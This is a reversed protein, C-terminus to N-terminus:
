VIKALHDLDRFCKSNTNKKDDAYNHVKAQVQLLWWSCSARTTNHRKHSACKSIHVFVHSHTNQPPLTLIYIHYYIYYYCLYQNASLRLFKLYLQLNTDWVNYALVHCGHTIYLKYLSLMFVVCLITHKQIGQVTKNIQKNLYRITCVDNHEDGSAGCVCVSWM